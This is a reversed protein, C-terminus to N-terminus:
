DLREERGDSIERQTTVKESPHGCRLTNGVQLAFLVMPALGLYAIVGIIRAASGFWMQVFFPGFMGFLNGFLFIALFTVTSRPLRIPRM